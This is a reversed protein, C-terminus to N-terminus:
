KVPCSGSEMFSMLCSQCFFAGCFCSVCPGQYEFWGQLGQFLQALPLIPTNGSSCCRGPWPSFGNTDEAVEWVATAVDAKGRSTGCILSLARKCDHTTFWQKNYRWMISLCLANSWFHERLGDISVFISTFQTANIIKRCIQRKCSWQPRCFHGFFFSVVMCRSLSCLPSLLLLMQFFILFDPLTPLVSEKKKLPTIKM